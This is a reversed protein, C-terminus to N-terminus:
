VEIQTGRQRDMDSFKSGTSCCKGYAYSWPLTRSFLPIRLYEDQQLVGNPWGLKSSCDFEGYRLNQAHVNPNVVSEAEMNILAASEPAPGRCISAKKQWIYEVQGLNVKVM